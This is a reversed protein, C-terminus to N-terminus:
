DRFVKFLRWNNISWETGFSSSNRENWKWLSWVRLSKMDRWFLVCDCGSKASWCNNRNWFMLSPCGRYSQSYRQFIRFLRRVSCHSQLLKRKWLPFTIKCDNVGKFTRASYPNWFPLRQMSNRCEGWLQNHHQQQKGQWISLAKSLDRGNVSSSWLTMWSAREDFAAIGVSTKSEKTETSFRFEALSSKDCHCLDIDLSNKLSVLPYWGWLESTSLWRSRKTIDKWTESYTVHWMSFAFDCQYYLFDSDKMEIMARIMKEIRNIKEGTITWENRHKEKRRFGKGSGKPENLWKIKSKIIMTVCRFCKTSIIMLPCRVSVRLFENKNQGTLGDDKQFCWFVRWERFHLIISLCQNM